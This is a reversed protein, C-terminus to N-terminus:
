RVCEPPNNYLPIFWPEAGFLSGFVAGDPFSPSGMAVLWDGTVIARQRLVTKGGLLIDFEWVDQGRDRVTYKGAIPGAGVGGGLKEFNVSGSLDGAYTSSREPLRERPDAFPLPVTCLVVNVSLNNRPTWPFTLSKPMTYRWACGMKDINLGSRRVVKAVSKWSLGFLRQNFMLDRPAGDRVFESDKVYNDDLGLIHGFEHQYSDPAGALPWKSVGSPGTVPDGRDAPKDSLYDTEARAQVTAEYLYGIRHSRPTTVTGDDLVVHVEDNLVNSPSSVFRTTLKVRLHYCGFARSDWAAQISEAIRNIAKDIVEPNRPRPVPAFERKFRGQICGGNEGKNTFSVCVEELKQEVDDVETIRTARLSFALRVSVVIEKRAEFVEWVVAGNANVQRQDPASSSPAAGVPVAALVGVVALCLSALCAHLKSRVTCGM